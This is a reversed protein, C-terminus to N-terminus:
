RRPAIARHPPMCHLPPDSCVVGRGEEGGWERVQVAVFSQVIFRSVRRVGGDITGGRVRRVLLM